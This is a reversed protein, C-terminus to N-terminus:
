LLSVQKWGTKGTGSQKLYKIGSATDTYESGPPASLAGEPAGADQIRYYGSTAEVNAGEVVGVAYNSLKNGFSQVDVIRIDSPKVGGAHPFFEIGYDQTKTAQNDFV